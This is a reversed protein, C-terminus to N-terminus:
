HAVLAKVGLDQPGFYANLLENVQRNRTTRIKSAVPNLYRFEISTFGSEILLYRLVEPHLPRQHTPDIWFTSSAVALNLSNPTEVLIMGSPRLVRRVETLLLRLDDLNLHEVFHFASVCEVSSDALSALFKLASGSTVLHGRSLLDSVREESIDNGIIRIGQERCLDLWEGRGCGVDVVLSEGDILHQVDPLYSELRQKVLDSPGRFHSNYKEDHM